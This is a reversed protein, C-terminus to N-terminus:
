DCIEQMKFHDPVLWLSSRGVGVAKKHIEQIKFHDPIRHFAKPMTRMIENCM